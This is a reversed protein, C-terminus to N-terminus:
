QEKNCFQSRMTPKELTLRLVWRKNNRAKEEGDTEAKAVPFHHIGQQGHELCSGSFSLRVHRLGRFAQLSRLLLCLYTALAREHM